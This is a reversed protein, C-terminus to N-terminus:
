KRVFSLLTLVSCFALLINGAQNFSSQYECLSFEYFGGLGPLSFSLSCTSNQLDFQTGSFASLLPNSNFFSDLFPEETLDPPDVYDVDKELTTKFKEDNYHATVDLNNFDDKGFEADIKDNSRWNEVDSTKVIEDNLAILADLKGEVGSQLDGVSGTVDVLGSIVSDLKDEIGSQLDGVSKNVSDVSSKTDILYGEIGDTNDEIQSLKSNSQGILGELGDINDEIQNLKSNSQRLYGEIGDTNDEIDNLKINSQNILGELGDTNDEIQNLKSNAQGM